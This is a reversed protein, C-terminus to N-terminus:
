SQTYTYNVTLTGASSFTQSTIAVKDVFTGASAATFLGAHTVTAGSPVDFIATATIQGNAAASWSLAKRAYTGGTVESTGSTGPDATHLSGYAADQGYKAALDNKTTTVAIPM